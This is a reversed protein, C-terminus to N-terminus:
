QATVTQTVTLSYNAAPTAAPVTQSLGVGTLYGRWADDSGAGANLLQISSVSGSVFTSSSGTSIGVSTGFTSNLTGVSPNVSLQGAAASAGDYPYSNTGGDSWSGTASLALTWGTNSAGPNEVTIRQANDGFIGTSTQTTTSATTASMGFSPSVVPSGGSDLISTSLAGPNVTQTLNSSATLAAFAAPAGVFVAGIALLSTVPLLRIRM